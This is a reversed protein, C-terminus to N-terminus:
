ATLPHRECIRCLLQSTSVVSTGKEGPGAELHCKGAEETLRLWAVLNQVSVPSLFHRTNGSLGALSVERTTKCKRM